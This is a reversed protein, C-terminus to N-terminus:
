PQIKDLQETPRGQRRARYWDALTQPAIGLLYGAVIAQNLLTTRWVGLTEWRRASTIATASVVHIRGKTQLRQMLEFDEMLPLERFGDVANFMERRLFIAQDGYPLGLWRSRLRVGFEIWRLSWLRSDIALRFAGAITNPRALTQRVWTAFSQPLRTDAHLFLLIDGSAVAAGANMQRARGAVPAVIVKDAYERAIAVTADQSGGDVVVIELHETRPLRQLTTRINHAENLAPMVISIKAAASM